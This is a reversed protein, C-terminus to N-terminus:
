ATLSKSLNPAIPISAMVRMTPKKTAAIPTARIKSPTMSAKSVWPTVARCQNSPRNYVGIQTTRHKRSSSVGPRLTRKHGKAAAGTPRSGHGSLAMLPSMCQLMLPSACVSLGGERRRPNLLARLSPSTWRRHQWQRAAFHVDTM